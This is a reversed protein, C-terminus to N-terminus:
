YLVPFCYYFVQHLSPLCFPSQRHQAARSHALLQPVLKCGGEHQQGWAGSNVGPHRRLGGQIGRPTCENGASPTCIQQAAHAEQCVCITQSFHQTEKRFAEAAAQTPRGANNCALPQSCSGALCKKADFSILPTAFDAPQLHIKPLILM